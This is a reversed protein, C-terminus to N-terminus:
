PTPELLAATAIDFTVTLNVWTAVDELADRLREIETDRKAIESVAIDYDTYHGYPYRTVKQLGHRAM